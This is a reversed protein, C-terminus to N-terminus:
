RIVEDLGEKLFHLEAIPYSKETNLKEILIEIKLKMENAHDGAKVHNNYREFFFMYKKLEHKAKDREEEKKTLENKSSKMEEYKNCKYYGGTANGHESWSGMCM